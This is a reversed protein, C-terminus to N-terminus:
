SSTADSASRRRAECEVDQSVAEGLARAVVADFAERAEETLAALLGDLALPEPQPCTGSAATEPADTERCAHLVELLRANHYVVSRGPRAPAVRRADGRASRRLLEERDQLAEQASMEASVDICEALM